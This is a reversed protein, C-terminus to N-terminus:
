PKRFLADDIAINHQLEELKVTFNFSEFAFRVNFPVKVGNVDKYDELYRTRVQIPVRNRYLTKELISQWRPSTRM